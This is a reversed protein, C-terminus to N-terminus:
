SFEIELTLNSGSWNIAGESSFVDITLSNTKQINSSCYDSYLYMQESSTFNGPLSITAFSYPEYKSQSIYLTKDCLNNVRFYLFGYTNGMANNKVTIQKLSFQHFELMTPLVFKTRDGTINICVTYPM